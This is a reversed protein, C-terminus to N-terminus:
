EDLRDRVRKSHYVVVGRGEAEIKRMALIYSSVVNVAVHVLSIM